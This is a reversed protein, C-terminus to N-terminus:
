IGTARWRGSASKWVLAIKGSRSPAESLLTLSARVEEITWDPEEVMLQDLLEQDTLGDPARLLSALIWYDHPSLGPKGISHNFTAKLDM